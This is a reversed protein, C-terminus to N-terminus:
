NKAVIGCLIGGWHLTAPYAVQWFVNEYRTRIFSFRDINGTRLSNDTPSSLEITKVEAANAWDTM